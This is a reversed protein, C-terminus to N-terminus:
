TSRRSEYIQRIHEVDIDSLEDSTGDTRPSFVFQHHGQRQAEKAAEFFDQYMMISDFDCDNSLSEVLFQKARLDKLYGDAYTAGGENHSLLYGYIIRNVPDQLRDLVGRSPSSNKVQSAEGAEKEGKEALPRGLGFDGSGGSGARPRGLSFGGSGGSGARPRGFEAKSMSKVPEEVSGAKNAQTGALKKIRAPVTNRNYAALPDPLDNRNWPYRQHFQEHELGACHLMEHIMLRPQLPSRLNISQPQENLQGMASCGSAIIKFEVHAVSRDSGELPAFLLFGLQKNLADVARQIASDSHPVFPIPIREWYRVNSPVVAM